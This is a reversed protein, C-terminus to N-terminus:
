YASDREGIIESMRCSYMCHIGQGPFLVLPSVFKSAAVLYAVDENDTACLFAAQIPLSSRRWANFDIEEATMTNPRLDMHYARGDFNLECNNIRISDVDQSAIIHETAQLYCSWNVVDNDELFEADVPIRYDHSTGSILEPVVNASYRSDTTGFRIFPQAWPWGHSEPSLLDDSMWQGPLNNDYDRTAEWTAHNAFGAWTSKVEVGGGNYETSFTVPRRSYSMVRCHVGDNHANACGGEHAPAQTRSNSEDGTIHLMNTDADLKWWNPIPWIDHNNYYADPRTSRNNSINLACLGLKFSIASDIGFAVKWLKSAGELCFTNQFVSQRGAIDITFQGM